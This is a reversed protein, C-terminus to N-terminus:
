HVPRQVEATKVTVGGAHLSVKVDIQKKVLNSSPIDAALPPLFNM